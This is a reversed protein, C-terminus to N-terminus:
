DLRITAADLTAPVMMEFSIGNRNFFTYYSGFLPLADWSELIAHQAESWAACREDSGPAAALARDRAADFKANEIKAHNNPGSVHASMANPTDISAIYPRVEVDWDDGRFMVIYEQVSGTKLSAQAGMETLAQLVYEPTSNSLTPTGIVRLVLPQGDKEFIGKDNPTWGANTLIERAAEISAEPLADETTPDYCEQNSSVLSSAVVGHDFTGVRAAKERDIATMIARRVEMDSTPHDERHNMSLYQSGWQALDTVTLSPDARLRDQDRGTISAIDIGGSILENAATTNNVIVRFVLEDPFAGEREPAYPNAVLTYTEGDLSRSTDIMYPGTGFSTNRLQDESDLGAPCTISTAPNSLGLLLDSNPANLKITVTREADDSTVTYGATGVVRSIYPSATEPAGMRELSRAVMAPTMETGDSCVISDRLKLTASDATTEWSVAVEPRIEGDMNRKVLTEYAASILGYTSETGASKAPDLTDPPSSM